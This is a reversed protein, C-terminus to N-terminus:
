NKGDFRNGKRPMGEGSVTTVEDPHRTSATAARSAYPPTPETTIGDPTPVASVPASIGGEDYPVELEWLRDGAEVLARQVENVADEGSYPGLQALRARMVTELETATAFREAPSRRLLTHLIDRLPV